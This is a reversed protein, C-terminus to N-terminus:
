RETGHKKWRGSVAISQTQSSEIQNSLNLGEQTILTSFSYSTGPITPSDDKLFMTSSNLVVTRLKGDPRRVTIRSESVFVVTGVIDVILYQAAHALGVFIFFTLSM